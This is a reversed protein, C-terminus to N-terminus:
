LDEEEFVSCTTDGHGSIVGGCQPCPEKGQAILDDCACTGATQNNWINDDIYCMTCAPDVCCRYVGAAIAKKIGLDQEKVVRQQMEELSLREFSSLFSNTGLGLGFAIILLLIVFLIKKM